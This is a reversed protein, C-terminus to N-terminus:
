RLTGAARPPSGHHRRRGSARHGPPSATVPTEDRTPMEDRAPPMDSARPGALTSRLVRFATEAVEPDAGPRFRATLSIPSAAPLDYREILGEPAPGALALLTVGLGARAANLVGGLYAADGVVRARIGHEALM